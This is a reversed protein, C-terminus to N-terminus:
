TATAASLPTSVPALCLAPTQLGFHVLVAADLREEHEAAYQPQHGRAGSPEKRSAYIRHAAAFQDVLVVVQQVPDTTGDALM